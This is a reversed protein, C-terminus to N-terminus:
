WAGDVVAPERWAEPGAIGKVGATEEGAGLVAPGSSLLSVVSFNDFRADSIPQDSYPNTVLGVGTLGTLDGACGDLFTGNVSLLMVPTRFTDIERAVRIQNKATGSHIAPAYTVPVCTTFGGPDRRLIRYMRYDTNMDFLFYRSDLLAGAL